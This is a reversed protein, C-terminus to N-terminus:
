RDVETRPRTIVPNPAASSTLMEEWGRTIGAYVREMVGGIGLFWFSLATLCVVVKVPIGMAFMNMQPLNRAVVALALEVLLICFVVPAVLSFGMAFMTATQKLVSPAFGTVPWVAGVEVKRLSFAIGRLLAHHGNLVFFFLLAFLQIATTLVPLPRHTIPDVVQGIGFGVQVDLLNGALTFAGFALLVGLGMSAGLAAESLGALMLDGMSWPDTVTPTHMGVAVALSLATLMLARITPPISVAYFVPTMVFVAAVRLSVLFFEQMRAVGIWQSLIDLGM